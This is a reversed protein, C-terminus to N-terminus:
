DRKSERSSSDAGSLTRTALVFPADERNSEPTSDPLSAGPSGAEGILSEAVRTASRADDFVGFVTGGSGSMGVGLAGASRLRTMWRGIPPCLRIAAPELDNVLLAGLTRRVDAEEDRLSSIARMTYGAGPDTLSGPLADAVRYVEATAVSIGPNAVVLPLEPLGEVPEIREGIGTVLAPRPDLFYPVDAGLELAWAALRGPDPADGPLTTM